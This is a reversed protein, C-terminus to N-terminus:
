PTECSSVDVDPAAAADAAVDSTLGIITTDDRFKELSGFLTGETEVPIATLYLVQDGCLRVGTPPDVLTTATSCAGDGSPANSIFEFGTATEISNGPCIPGSVSLDLGDYHVVYMGDSQLWRAIVSGPAVPLDAEVVASGSTDYTSVLPAALGSNPLSFGDDGDDAEDGNGTDGDGDGDSTDGDGDPLEVPPPDGGSGDDDDSGCAAFVVGALLVAVLLLLVRM